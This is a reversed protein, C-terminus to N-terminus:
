NQQNRLNEYKAFENQQWHFYFFLIQRASNAGWSILYILVSSGTAIIKIGDISDVIL